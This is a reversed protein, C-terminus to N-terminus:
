ISRYMIKSELSLENQNFEIMKGKQHNVFHDDNMFFSSQIFVNSNKPVKTRIAVFSHNGYYTYCTYLYDIHLHVFDVLDNNLHRMELDNVVGLTPLYPLTSSCICLEAVSNHMKQYEYLQTCRM